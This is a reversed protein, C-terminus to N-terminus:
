HSGDAGGARGLRVVDPATRQMRRTKHRRPASPRAELRGRTRSWGRAESATRACSAGRSAATCAAPAYASPLQATSMRGAQEREYTARSASCAVLSVADTMPLSTPSNEGRSGHFPACLLSKKNKRGQDAHSAGSGWRGQGRALEEARPPARQQAARHTPARKDTRAM